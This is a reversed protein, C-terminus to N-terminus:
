IGSPVQYFKVYWVVTFVIGISLFVLGAVLICHDASKKTQGLKRARYDAYSEQNKRGMPIFTQVVYRMIYGIGLLAGEGSVYMMGAFLTLLLGSVSFADSLIQLNVALSDTFFGKIWVVAMAILLAVGFCILYKTLLSKKEQEM